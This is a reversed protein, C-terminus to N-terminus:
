IKKGNIMVHYDKIEVTPLDKTVKKMMPKKLRHFLFGIYEKFNQILYWNQAQATVKSQYKNWNLASKFGSKLQEFDQM